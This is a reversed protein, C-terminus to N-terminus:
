YKNVRPTNEFRTRTQQRKLQTIKNELEKIRQEAIQKITKIEEKLEKIEQNQQQNELNTKLYDPEFVKLINNLRQEGSPPNQQYFNDM